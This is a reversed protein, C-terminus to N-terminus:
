YKGDCIPDIASCWHIIHLFYSNYFSYWIDPMLFTNVFPKTYDLIKSQTVIENSVVPPAPAESILFNQTMLM